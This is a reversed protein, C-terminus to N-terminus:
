TADKAQHHQQNHSSAWIHADAQRSTNTSDCCEDCYAQYKRPSIREVGASM